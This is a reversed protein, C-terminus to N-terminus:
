ESSIVAFSQLDITHPIENVSLVALRPVSRRTFTKLHRRIDPGCLLVPALGQSTMADANAALKRVLQEALRPEIVFMGNGDSRRISDSIQSEIRPNLSLVSLADNHGRLSHCISHSLRQRVLENLEAPDKTGRGVDALSEIILDINRIPVEEALLAQLVRQIDSVSMIAPIMEEILGPQRSRVGELMAVVDARSLLTPMEVRVVEGLHTMLATIPDVLTYGSGRAEDRSDDDIWTAPLGFAPDRAEIGALPRADTSTGRIALTKEPYLHGSAHRAGFLAIEYDNPALSAGDHFTVAPFTFGTSKEQQVRLAAIRESLVAKYSQWHASLDRGLLIEIPPPARMDGQETAEQEGEDFLATEAAETRRRLTFWLAAMLAMLILIPWKPMGPLALLILLATIVILPIKPVSTLQRLVETSLQRDSASRTVIIGTAVSIILAPVQTVIGDGITLLTFTQLAKYWGLGLQAVGIIWGAFINILLIIIGAIADGKVFKSAGDMAGYFSAEKELNARRRKAENQDILGMNLDADISMQQGPVSDLVFRAAVESVRQAGSTVVIYQVVVLIFFVVLGVIFSGQVAFSGISDIVDGAHAQTLILRTAAVNLSLRFLTGVLLLSPFTSFEVPKEVYFTLLLITLALAFNMIIFMDLMAPPIPAFLIMLIALVAGVLFLDQNKGVATAFM